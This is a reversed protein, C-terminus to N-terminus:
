TPTVGRLEDMFAFFDAEVQSRRKPSADRAEQERYAKEEAAERMLHAAFAEDVSVTAGSEPIAIGEFPNPADAVAEMAAAVADAHAQDEAAKSAAIISELHAVAEAHAADADYDPSETVEPEIVPEATSKAAAKRALYRKQADNRKRRKEAAQEPTSCRCRRGGEAQSRCMRGLIGSPSM